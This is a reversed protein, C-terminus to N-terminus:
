HSGVRVGEQTRLESNQTRCISPKAAIPRYPVLYRYATDLTLPTGLRLCVEKSDKVRIADVKMLKKALAPRALVALRM